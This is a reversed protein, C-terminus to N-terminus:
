RVIAIGGSLSGTGRLSFSPRYTPNTRDIGTSVNIRIAHRYPM